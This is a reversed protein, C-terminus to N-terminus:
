CFYSWVFLGMYDSASCFCLYCSQPKYTSEPGRGRGNTSELPGRPLLKSQQGNALGAVSRSRYSLRERLRAFSSPGAENGNGLSISGREILCGSASDM